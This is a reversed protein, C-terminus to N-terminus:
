IDGFIAQLTAIATISATEARLIRPGMSIAHFGNNICIDIEENSFGGEPGILINIAESSKFELQKLSKSNKSSPELLMNTQNKVSTIYNRFNIPEQVEPISNRWCQACAAIAVKQWHDIKNEIKDSKIKLVSHDSILPTIQNVGLETAKQIILDMKQSKALAQALNIKIPSEYNTDNTDIILVTVKKRNVFTIKTTYEVNDGNFLFIEDDIKLRLVKYIQHSVEDELTYEKNIELDDPHFFRLKRM